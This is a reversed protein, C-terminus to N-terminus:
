YMRKSFHFGKSNPIIKILVNKLFSDIFDKSIKLRETNIRSTSNKKYGSQATSFTSAIM